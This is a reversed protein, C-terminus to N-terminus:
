SECEDNCVEDNQYVKPKKHINKVNSNHKFTKQTKLNELRKREREREKIIMKLHETEEDYKIQACELQLRDQECIFQDKMDSMAFRYEEYLEKFLNAYYDDFTGEQSIRPGIKRDM